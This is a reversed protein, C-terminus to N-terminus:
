HWRQFSAHRDHGVTGVFNDAVLEGIAHRRDRDVAGL